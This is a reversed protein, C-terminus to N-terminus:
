YLLGELLGSYSGCTNTQCNSGCGTHIYCQQEMQGDDLSALEMRRELEEIDLEEINLSQVEGLALASDPQKPDKPQSM